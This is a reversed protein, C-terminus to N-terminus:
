RAGRFPRTDSAARLIHLAHTRRTVKAFWTRRRQEQEVPDEIHLIYDFPIACFMDLILRASTYSPFVLYFRFFGWWHMAYNKAILYPDKVLKGDKDRYATCFNVLIDVIFFCDLLVQIKLLSSTYPNYGVLDAYMWGRHQSQWRESAVKCVLLSLILILSTLDWVRRLWGGPLIVFIERSKKRKSFEASVGEALEKARVAVRQVNYKVRHIGIGPSEPCSFRTIFRCLSSSPWIRREGWALGWVGAVVDSDMSEDECNDLEVTEENSFEIETNDVADSDMLPGDPGHEAFSSSVSSSVSCSSCSKSRPGDVCIADEECELDSCPYLPSRDVVNERPGQGPSEFWHRRTLGNPSTSGDHKGQAEPLFKSLLPSAEISSEFSLIEKLSLAM